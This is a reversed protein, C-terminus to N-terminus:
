RKQREGPSAVGAKNYVERLKDRLGQPIGQYQAVLVQDVQRFLQVVGEQRTESGRVTGWAVTGVWVGLGVMVARGWRQWPTRSTGTGAVQRRLGEIEARLPELDGPPHRALGQALTGLTTELDGLSVTLAALEERIKGM